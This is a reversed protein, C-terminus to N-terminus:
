RPSAAFTEVLPALNQQYRTLSYTIRQTLTGASNFLLVVTSQNKSRARTNKPSDPRFISKPAPEVVSSDNMRITFTQTGTADENLLMVSLQAQAATSTSIVALNASSSTSPLYGGPLLTIAIMQM